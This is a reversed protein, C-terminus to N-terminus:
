MTKKEFIKAIMPRRLKNKKSILTSSLNLYRCIPNDINNTNTPILIINGNKFKRPFGCMEVKFEKTITIEIIPPLMRAESNIGAFFFM